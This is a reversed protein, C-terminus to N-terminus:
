HEKGGCTDLLMGDGARVVRMELSGDPNEWKGYFSCPVPKELVPDVLYLHIRIGGPEADAMEMKEFIGSATMLRTEKGADTEIFALYMNEEHAM